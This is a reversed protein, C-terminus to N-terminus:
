PTDVGSNVPDLNVTNPNIADKNVVSSIVCTGALFDGLRRYYSVLLIANIVTPILLINIIFVSNRIISRIFGIPEATKFNVVQIKCLRKGLSQGNFGDSILFLSALLLQVALSEIGFLGIASTLVVLLLTLDIMKAAFRHFTSAMQFSLQPQDRTPM